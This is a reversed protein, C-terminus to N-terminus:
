YWFNQFKTIKQFLACTVICCCSLTELYNEVQEYIQLTYFDCTIFLVEHFHDCGLTKDM